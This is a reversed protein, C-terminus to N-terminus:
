SFSHIFSHIFLYIFSYFVSNFSLYTRGPSSCDFSAGLSGVSLSETLMTVVASPPFSTGVSRRLPPLRPFNIVGLFKYPLLRKCAIGQSVFPFISVVLYVFFTTLLQLCFICARKLLFM